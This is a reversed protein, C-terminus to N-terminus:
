LSKNWDDIPRKIYAIKILPIEFVFSQAFRNWWEDNNMRCEDNWVNTM